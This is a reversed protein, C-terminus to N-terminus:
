HSCLAEILPRVDVKTGTVLVLVRDIVTSIAVLVMFGFLILLEFYEDIHTRITGM